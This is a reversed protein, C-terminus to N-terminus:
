DREKIHAIRVKWNFAYRSTELGTLGGFIQFGSHFLM